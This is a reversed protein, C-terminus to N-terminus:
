TRTGRMLARYWVCLCYMACVQGGPGSSRSFSLDVYTRPIIERGFRELWQRALEMDHATELVRLPPPAPLGGGDHLFRALISPRLSSLPLLSARTLASLMVSSPLGAVRDCSRM